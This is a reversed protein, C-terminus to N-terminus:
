LGDKAGLNESSDVMSKQTAAVHAQAERCWRETLSIADYMHEVSLPESTRLLGSLQIRLQDWDCDKMSSMILPILLAKQLPTTQRIFLDCLERASTAPRPTSM